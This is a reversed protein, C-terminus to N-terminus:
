FRRTAPYPGAPANSPFGGLQPAPPYATPQWTGTSLTGSPPLPSPASDDFTLDLGAVGLDGAHSMLLTKAGGPAVLLANIDRPFTHSLNSLTVTM